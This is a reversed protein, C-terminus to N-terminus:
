MEIAMHQIISFVAVAIQLQELTFTSDIEYIKYSAMDFDAFIKGSDNTIYIKEKKNKIRTLQNYVMENFSILFVNNNISFETLIKYNSKFISMERAIGFNKIKFEKPLKKISIPNMQYINNENTFRNAIVNIALSQEKNGIIIKGSWKYREIVSSTSVITGWDSYSLNGQIVIDNQGNRESVFYGSLIVNNNKDNSDLSVNPYNLTTRCSSLGVIFAMIYVVLFRRKM